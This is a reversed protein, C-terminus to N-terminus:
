NQKSSPNWQRESEGLRSDSLIAIEEDTSILLPLDAATLHTTVELNGNRWSFGLPQKKKLGQNAQTLHPHHGSPLSSPLPNHVKLHCM